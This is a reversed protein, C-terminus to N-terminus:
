GPSPAAALCSSASGFRTAVAAARAADFGKLKCLAPFVSAGHSNAIVRAM